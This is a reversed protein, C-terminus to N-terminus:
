RSSGFRGAPLDIQVMVGDRKVKVIVGAMRAAYPSGSNVTVISKSPDHRRVGDTMM